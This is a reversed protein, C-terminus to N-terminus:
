FFIYFLHVNKLLEMLLAKLDCAGNLIGVRMQNIQLQTLKFCNERQINNRDMSIIKTITTFDSTIKLRHILGEQPTSLTRLQKLTAM